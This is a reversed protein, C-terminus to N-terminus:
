GKLEQELNKFIDERIKGDKFFERWFGRREQRSKGSKAMKQDIYRLMKLARNLDKTLSQQKDYLQKQKRYDRDLILFLMKYENLMAILYRKLVDALFYVLQKSTRKKPLEIKLFKFLSIHLQILRKM